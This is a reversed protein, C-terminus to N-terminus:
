GTLILVVDNRNVRGKFVDVPVSRGRRHRSVDFVKVSGSFSEIRYSDIGAGVGMHNPADVHPGRHNFITYYANSGSVNGGQMPFTWRIVEFSNGRLFNMQKMFNKGWTREPLDETVLTGLDIQESPEFVVPQREAGRTSCAVVLISGFVASSLHMRM